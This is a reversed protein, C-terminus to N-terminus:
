NEKYKRNNELLETFTVPEYNNIEVGANLAKDMTSLLPWYSDKRNNHIHGYILYAGKDRRNWDMM